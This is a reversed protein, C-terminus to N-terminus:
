ESQTDEMKSHDVKTMDHGTQKIESQTTELIDKVVFEVTVEGAKNFILSVKRRENPKLQESLTRFMLHYSGPKLVVTGGAPIPLGNELEVMKMVDDQMSMEHIEFAESFDTKGSVLTDDEAGNNIVTMFGGGVPAMPPTSRAYPAKIVLDGVKYSEASVSGVLGFILSTLLYKMLQKRLNLVTM